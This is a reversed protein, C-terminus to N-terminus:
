SGTVGRAVVPPVSPAPRFHQPAPRGRRQPAWKRVKVATGVPGRLIYGGMRQRACREHPGATLIVIRLRRRSMPQALCIPITLLQAPKGPEVKKLIPKSSKSWCSMKRGRMRCTLASWRRTAQRRACRRMRTVCRVSPCRPRRSRSVRLSRRREVCHGLFAVM